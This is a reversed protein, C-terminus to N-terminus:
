QYVQNAVNQKSLALAETSTHRSRRLPNVMYIGREGNIREERTLKEVAQKGWEVWSTM